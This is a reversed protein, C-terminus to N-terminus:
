DGQIFRAAREPSLVMTLRGSDHAVLEYGSKQYSKLAPENSEDTQLWVGEFNEAQPLNLYDKLCARMLPRALGQGLYDKYLRIAFTHNAAIEPLPAPAPRHWVIGALDTASKGLLMYLATEPKNWNAFTEASTFRRAADQPTSQQIHPQLSKEVLQAVLEPSHGRVIQLDKDPWSTILNLSSNLGM